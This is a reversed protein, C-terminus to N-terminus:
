LARDVLTTSKSFVWTFAFGAAYYDDTTVLPSDSFTANKLSDYRIFTGLWVDNIKKQLTLTIRSGGYGQSAQYAQRQPTANAATVSYFYDHYRQDGYLPGAALSAKWPDNKSSTTVYEVYPAFAIGQYGIEWFAASIVARLPLRLWVTRPDYQEGWLRIDLSPGVEVIPDLAPMGARPSNSDNAVPVGGSVSIEMFVRDSQFLQSHMGSEDINFKEGRYALYPFPLIYGRSADTGRYHPLYLAGSGIGIEWLPLTKSQVLSSTFLTSLIVTFLFLFKFPRLSLM